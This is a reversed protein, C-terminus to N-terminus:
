GRVRLSHYFFGMFNFGSVTLSNRGGVSAVIIVITAIRTCLRYSWGHLNPAGFAVEGPISPGVLMPGEAAFVGTAKHEESGGDVRRKIGETKADANIEVRVRPLCDELIWLFM